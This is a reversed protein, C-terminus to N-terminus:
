NDLAGYFGNVLEIERRYSAIVGLTQGQGVHQVRM